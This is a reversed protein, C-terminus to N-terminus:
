LLLHSVIRRLAWAAFLILFAVVVYYGYNFLKYTLKGTIKARNHREIQQVVMVNRKYIDKAETIIDLKEDETLSNRTALEYGKKYELRFVEDDDVDFRFLNTGFESVEATSKGEVQPFVGTAKSLSSLMIKGGAFLALYMVHCYALLVHPKEKYADYIHQVFDIQESRIPKEFKSPDNGYFFLLDRELAATRAMAPRWVQKLIEGTKSLPVQQLEKNILEEVTRFVHYFAQIGQRYIRADRIAVAFKLTITRNITNHETRTNFNIRNGLAGIDTALPLIEQQPIKTPKHLHAM